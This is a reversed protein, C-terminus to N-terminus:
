ENFQQHVLHARPGARAPPLEAFHVSPARATAVHTEPAAAPLAFSLTKVQEALRLADLSDLDSCDDPAVDHCPPPPCHPCVMEGAAPEVQMAMACPAVVISLWILGFLALNVRALQSSHRRIAHMASM